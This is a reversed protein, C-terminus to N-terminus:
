DILGEKLAYYIVEADKTMGMKKLLRSRYTSITHTNLLFKEAMEKITKGSAILCMVQYERKSLREHVPSKITNGTDFTLKEALSLSIYKKGGSVTQIAKLLEDTTKEKTLYGDAGSRIVRAAYHEEPYISLVLVPLDPRMKKLEHLYHLGKGESILINLLVIDCDMTELRSLVDPGNGSEGVVTLGATCNLIRKIGDRVMIHPDAIFIKLISYGKEDKEGPIPLPMQKWKEEGKKSVLSSINALM